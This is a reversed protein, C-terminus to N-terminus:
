SFFHCEEIIDCNWLLPYCISIDLLIYVYLLRNFWIDQYKQVCKIVSEIHGPNYMCIGNDIISYIHKKATKKEEISGRLCAPKFVETPGVIDHLINLLIQNPVAEM